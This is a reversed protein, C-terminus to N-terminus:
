NDSANDSAGSGVAAAASPGADDPSVHPVGQLVYQAYMYKLAWDVDDLHLWIRNKREVFLRAVRKEKCGPNAEPCELPFECSLVRGGTKHKKRKVGRGRTKIPTQVDPADLDNMPDASGADDDPAEEEEEEIDGQWAKQVINHFETMLGVRAIRSRGGGSATRQDAGAIAKHLWEQRMNILAFLVSKGGTQVRRTEMSMRKSCTGATILVQDTDFKATRFGAMLPHDDMILTPAIALRVAVASNGVAGAVALKGAVPRFVGSM